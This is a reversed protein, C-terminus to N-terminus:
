KNSKSDDGRLVQLLTQTMLEEWYKTNYSYKIHCLEHSTAQITESDRPAEISEKQFSTLFNLEINALQLTLRM